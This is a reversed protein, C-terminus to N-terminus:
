HGHPFYPHKSMIFYLILWPSCEICLALHDHCPMHVTNSSHLSLVSIDDCCICIGHVLCIDDIGYECIFHFKIPIDYASHFSNLSTIHPIDSIAYSLPKPITFMIHCISNACSTMHLMSTCSSTMVCEHYISKLDFCTSSLIVHPMSFPVVIDHMCDMDVLPVLVDGDGLIGKNDRGHSTPTTSFVMKHDGVDDM